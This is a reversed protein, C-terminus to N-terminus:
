IEQLYNGDNQYVSLSHADLIKGLNGFLNQVYECENM